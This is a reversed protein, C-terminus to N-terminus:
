IPLRPPQVHWTGSDISMSEPARKFFAFQSITRDLQLGEKAMHHAEMKGFPDFSAHSGSQYYVVFDELEDLHWHFGSSFLALIVKTGALGGAERIKGELDLAHELFRSRSSVMLHWLEGGLWGQRLEVDTGPTLLGQSIAEEYKPWRGVMKPRVTKVDVYIRSGNEAVLAFDITKPTAPLPAEYEVSRIRPEQCNLLLEGLALENHFDILKDFQSWGHVLIDDAAQQYKALLRPGSPFRANNAGFLASFHQRVEAIRASVWARDETTFPRTTM